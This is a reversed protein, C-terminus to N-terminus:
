RQINLTDQLLPGIQWADAHRTPGKPLIGDIYIHTNQNSITHVLLHDLAIFLCKYYTIYFQHVIVEM